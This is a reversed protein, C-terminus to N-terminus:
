KYDEPKYSKEPEIGKLVKLVGQALAKLEFSGPYFFKTKIFSVGSKLDETLLLSNALGGTIVLANVKGNLTGFAAGIEKIIQFVMAKYVLTATKDGGSVLNEIVKFDETGLYGKLGSNRSFLEKIDKETLGKKFVLDLIGGLPLAGARSISFPGMGLLADNVDILRGSKVAAISFGGGLHAIIFNGNNIKLSRCAESYCFKINLAHSRSKRPIGPVGSIRAVDILEDTSVPDVIFAPIKNNKVIENAILAGLNSAHNAYKANEYAKIM